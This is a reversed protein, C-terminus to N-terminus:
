STKMLYRRIFVDLSGAAGAYSSGAAGAYSSGAAGAYSCGVAGAYSSGAAGTYSSGAAGAYSSTCIGSTVTGVQTFHPATNSSPCFNQVTHPVFTPSSGAAGTCCICLKVHRLQPAANSSPCFNQVFHPVGTAYFNLLPHFSHLLHSARITIMYRIVIRHETSCTSSLYLWSSIGILM